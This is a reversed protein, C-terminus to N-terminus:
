VKGELNLAAKKQMRMHLWGKYASKVSIMRKKETHPQKLTFVSKVGHWVKKENEPM